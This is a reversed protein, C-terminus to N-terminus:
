MEFNLSSFQITRSCKIPSMGLCKRTDQKKEDAYEITHPRIFKVNSGNRQGVQKSVSSHNILYMHDNIKYFIIAAYHKTDFSTDKYFCKDNCDYAYLNRKIAKALDIVQKTTIGLRELECRKQYTIRQNYPIMHFFKLLNLENLETKSTLFERTYEMDYNNYKVEFDPIYKTARLTAPNRLFYCLQEIVCLNDTTNYSLECIGDSFKKNPIKLSCGYMPQNIPIVQKHKKTNIIIKYKHVWTIKCSDDYNYTGLIYPITHLPQNYFHTLEVEYYIVNKRDKWKTAITLELM